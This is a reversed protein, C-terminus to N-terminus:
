RSEMNAVEVPSPGLLASVGWRDREPVGVLYCSPSPAVLAGEPFRPNVWYLKYGFPQLYDEFAQVAIGRERAYLDIYEFYLLPSDREILRQAGRLVEMEHGEVDIKIVDASDELFLADLTRVVVEIQSDARPDDGLHSTDGERKISFEQIGPHDSVACQQIVVNGLGQTNRELLTIADPSPEIAVVRGCQGTLRSGLRSFYGINAGVDVFTDGPRLVSKLFHATFMEHRLDSYYFYGHCMYQRLDIYIVDGSDIRIPYCRARPYVNAFLRLMPSWGRPLLTRGTRVFRQLTDM